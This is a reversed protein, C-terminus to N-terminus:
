GELVPGSSYSSVELSHLVKEVGPLRQLEIARNCMIRKVDGLLELLQKPSEDRESESM